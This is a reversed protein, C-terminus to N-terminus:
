DGMTFRGGAILVMAGADSKLNTIEPKQNTRASSAKPAEAAPKRQCGQVFMLVSALLCAITIFHKM